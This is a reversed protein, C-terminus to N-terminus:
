GHAAAAAVILEAVPAKRIDSHAGAFSQGTTDNVVAAADVRYFGGPSLGYDFGGGAPMARSQAAAAPQFGDSGLGGWRDPGIANSNQGALFSARPYWVGVAWDFSTFTAVVPGAVRDRYPFLDGPRGFPNGSPGAFSWHSFAGQVLSLSAAPSQAADFGTLAYSVLRAGFSHGILHVRVSPAAAHLGTLLPALGTRGVTGARTKMTWYSLVRLTDKAGNVASGFWDGLSQAQGAGATTTGFVAATKQYAEVPDGTTLLAREGSDPGEGPPTLGAVLEAIRTILQIKAPEPRGGPAQGDDILEGIREISQRQGPDSYGSILSAAIQAGTLEGTGAGLADGPGGVAQASGAAPGPTAATPPFWLSPWYVGAFGVRGLNPNGQAADRIKPFMATFLDRAGQDSTGWGHSFVFLDQVQERMVESVFTGRDPATLTGKEDFTLDWVPEGTPLPKM